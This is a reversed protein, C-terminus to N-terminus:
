SCDRILERALQSRAPHALAVGNQEPGRVATLPERSKPSTREATHNSDRDVVARACIKGLADALAHSCPEHKTGLFTSFNKAADRSDRGLVQCIGHAPM